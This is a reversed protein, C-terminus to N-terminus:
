KFGQSILFPGYNMDVDKLHSDMWHTMFKLIEITQPMDGEVCKQHLEGIKMKIDTHGELHKKYYPYNYKKMAAEEAAFHQASQSVLETIIVSCQETKGTQKVADLLSNLLEMIKKHQEDFLAIGVAYNDDWKLYQIM